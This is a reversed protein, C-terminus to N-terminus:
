PSVAREDSSRGAEGRATVRGPLAAALADRLRPTLAKALRDTLHDTDRYALVNWLVPACTETCVWPIPDVLGGSATGVAEAEAARLDARTLDEVPASCSRVDTLAGSLCRNPSVDWRPTDHMYVVAADSRERVAEVTKAVGDRWQDVFPADNLAADEYGAAASSMVVLDPDVDAIRDLAAERWAACERYERGLAASEVRVDAVPCASKTLPLLRAGRAEAVALLPSFWQAAHSDGILVITEGADVEGFSCSPPKTTTSDAHCGDAYLAPIDSAAGAITPTINRPVASAPLPGALVSDVTPEPAVGTGRLDPLTTLPISLAAAVVTAPVFVLPRFRGARAWSRARQELLAHSVAALATTGAFALVSEGVTLPRDLALAPITFVPWHWLYLSYSRDGIWRLPSAALVRAVPDRGDGLLVLATGVVPLLTAVGPFPTTADFVAYGALIGILGIAALGPWATTRRRRGSRRGLWIAFLAGTGLEWARTHVGFFTWPGSIDTLVLMTVFSTLTLLTAIVLVHRRLFPTACIVALAVAWGVYFQEEVGLSWFQQFPSPTHEALYDTGTVALKLNEAGFLAALASTRAGTRDLPPLFLFVAALTVAVTAVAAPALRLLRGSFFRVLRIRGTRLHERLLNQTILFGSIVFFVDVGSFGGDIFPVGAHFLLVGLVAVARLGQIDPRWHQM